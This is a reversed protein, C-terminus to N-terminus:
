SLWNITYVATSFDASIICGSGELMKLNEPTENQVFAVVPTGKARAYGVEFLTGSDLGDVIAFVVDCRDLAELDLPVVDTAMGHGVDHLPSFVDNGTQLLAHRSENILWREAMTFFPGALYIYKRKHGTTPLPPLELARLTAPDKPIPLAQTQCYYATALSAQAAAEAPPRRQEIWYHAFVASFIDGSGIPFVTSTRYAPVHTHGDTTFVTAGASGQKIVVIEAGQALLQQGMAAVETQQTFQRAEWSNLIVALHRATSGKHAFPQPNNPSQPDYVVYEGHVVSEGELIGYILINDATVALQQKQLILKEISPYINPTALPHNYVFRVTAPLMTAHVQVRAYDAKAALERREDPGVFTYYALGESLDSLAVAARLGSGYLEDWLPEHCIERYTGGVITLM